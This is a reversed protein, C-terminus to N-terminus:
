SMEMTRIKHGTTTAVYEIDVAAGARLEMYSGPSIPFGNAETVGTSGVYMKKNDNNYIWLYKRSALPSAVADEAAGGTGLTNAANAIATEALAADNVTLPDSGAIYVYLAGDADVQLPAYDGDTDALAALTDNRVALGMVGQDGSVHAADESKSLATIAGDISTTDVLIADLTVGQALQEVEIAALDVVMASTDVLISDLTVGQALQEVEIAALDVVMANTDTLISDLTVGQALQEVEIAALDIVMAATDLAIAGTDADITTLLANGDTDIVYQEGKANQKFAAYDGDADTSAALVDQRVGLTFSGVDATTHASDEAYESNVAVEIDGTNTINVDLSPNMIWTDLARRDTEQGTVTHTGGGAAATIDVADGNEADIASAALKFNDADVRIVYYTTALALGAPLVGSSTLQVLGGTTMGHATENIIDTGVTVDGDVFAFAASGAETPSHHTILAGSDGSRVYAGVSHTDAKTEADTTDFILHDLM